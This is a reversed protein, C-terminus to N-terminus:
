PCWPFLRHPKQKLLGQPGMVGDLRYEKKKGKSVLDRCQQDLTTPSYEEGALLCDIMNSVCFILVFYNDVTSNVASSKLNFTSFSLTLMRLAGRKTGLLNRPRFIPGPHFIAAVVKVTAKEADELSGPRTFALVTRLWLAGDDTNLEVRTANASSSKSAESVGPLGLWSTPNPKFLTIHLRLNTPHPAYYAWFILVMSILM